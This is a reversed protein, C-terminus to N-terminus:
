PNDVGGNKNKNTAELKIASIGFYKNLLDFKFIPDIFREMYFDIETGEEGM